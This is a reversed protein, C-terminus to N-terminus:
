AVGRSELLQNVSEEGVWFKQTRCVARTFTGSRASQHVYISLSDLFVLRVALQLMCCEQVYTLLGSCVSCLQQLPQAFHM